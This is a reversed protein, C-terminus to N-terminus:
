VSITLKSDIFQHKDMVWVKLTTEHASYEGIQVQYISIDNLVTPSLLIM